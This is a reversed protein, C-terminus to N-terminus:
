RKPTWGPSSSSSPPPEPSAIGRGPAEGAAHAPPSRPHHVDFAPKQNPDCNPGFGQANFNYSLRGSAAKTVAEIEVQHQGARSPSCYSLLYYRKSKAEIRAAIEDFGRVIDERNKSAFTGTRGIQALQNRDVEQGVGIVYTDFGAGDLARTVEQPAVRHARDTGDTFVVLTGFRLPVPALDMQHNLTKVGEVVAGNLNTSPDRPRRTALVNIGARVSGGFGIIATVHPSGDFTYIAVKQYPGVRDAFSAAAQVVTPMDGSDFVSGSTDVLLLTYHIAAVEPQLITQRSELISVPQADEYIRFDQPTLNAVPDGKGTDVTFYVAVNSPKRVSADVLQLKLGACGAGVLALALMLLWAPVRGALTPNSSIRRNCDDM